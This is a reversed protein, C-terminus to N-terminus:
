DERSWYYKTLIILDGNDHCYSLKLFHYVPYFALHRMGLFYQLTRVSITDLALRIYLKLDIHRVSYFSDKVSFFMSLVTSNLSETTDSEKCGWSDCWILGGQEDGSRFLM